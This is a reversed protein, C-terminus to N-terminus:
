GPFGPKCENIYFLGPAMTYVYTFLGATFLLAFIIYDTRTFRYIMELKLPCYKKKIIKRSIQLRSVISNLENLPINMSKSLQLVNDGTYNRKIYKIKKKSLKTM